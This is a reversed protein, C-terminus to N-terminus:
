NEFMGQAWRSCLKEDAAAGVGPGRVRWEGETKMRTGM